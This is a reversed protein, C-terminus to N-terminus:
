VGRILVRSNAGDDFGKCVCSVRAISVRDGRGIRFIAFVDVQVADPRAASM